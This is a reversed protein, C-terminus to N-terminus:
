TINVVEPEQVHYGQIYNVGMQWMRAMVNADEVHSVITKIGKQKAVEMLETMKKQTAEEAFNQTFSSHFKLYALPMNEIMRASNSGVGFHEIALGLGLEELKGALMRAKRIHTEAITERVEFCIEQRTIQHEQILESVWAVFSDTENLTDESLKLFLLAGEARNDRSSISKVARDIVWRDISRMLGNAEAAGIFDSAHLEVGEENILRVLVDFHQRSDGELSAITQYALKLQNKVLATRIMEAKRSDAVEEESSRAQPGILAFRNGSSQSLGRGEGVLDDMVKGAGEGEGLPYVACTVTIQLESDGSTFVQAGIEEVIKNGLAEFETADNRSIVAGLEGCAVNFWQDRSNLRQGLAEGLQMALNEADILGIRDELEDFHDIALYLGASPATNTTAQELAALFDARGSLLSGAPAASSGASESRILFEIFQEGESEGRTLQVSVPVGSGDKNALRCDLMQGDAEGRTVRKIHDRVREQDQSFVVDMVPLAVLETDEEYGLLAAFAPNAESVIGECVHAVADGTGELLHTYRSEYDALLSRARALERQNHHSSSERLYVRELHSLGEPGGDAVLDRAGTRVAEVVGEGSFQPALALVPLTPAFRRCLEIIKQLPLEEAHLPAILLDFSHKQLESEAAALTSLWVTRVKHGSSLLHSEIRKANEEFPTLVLLVSSTKSQTAPNFGPPNTVM